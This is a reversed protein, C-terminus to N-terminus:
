CYNAQISNELFIVIIVRLHKKFICISQSFTILCILSLKLLKKRKKILRNFLLNLITLTTNWFYLFSNRLHTICALFVNCHKCHMLICSVINLILWFLSFSAIFQIQNNKKLYLRNTVFMQSNKSLVVAKSHM